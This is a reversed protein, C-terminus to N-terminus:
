PQKFRRNTNGPKRQYRGKNYAAEEVQIILFDSSPQPERTLRLPNTPPVLFPTGNLFTHMSNLKKSFLTTLTIQKLTVPNPIFTVREIFWFITAEKILSKPTRFISSRIRKVCLPPPLGFSAVQGPVSISSRKTRINGMKAKFFSLFYFLIVFYL